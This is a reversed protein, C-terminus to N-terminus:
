DSDKMGSNKLNEMFDAFQPRFVEFLPHSKNELM